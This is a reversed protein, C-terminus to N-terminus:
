NKHMKKGSALVSAIALLLLAVYMVFGYVCPPIGLIELSTCNKASLVYNTLFTAFCIGVFSIVTIAISCKNRLKRDLTIALSLVFIAAYMLAGFFCSPLGFFYLDCGPKNTAFTYYTLYGSFLTGLVAFVLIIQLLIKKEM